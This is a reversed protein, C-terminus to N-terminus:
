HNKKLTTLTLDLQLRIWELSAKLREQEPANDAALTLQEELAALKRNLAEKDIRAADAFDETAINIHAPGSELFGGRLAFVSTTGDTQEAIARGVKLALLLPRHNPLLGLEGLESIATLMKVEGSFGVGLPTAIKLKFSDAM